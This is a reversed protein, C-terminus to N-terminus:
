SGGDGVGLGYDRLGVGINGLDRGHRRQVRKGNRLAKGDIDFIKVDRPAGTDALYLKKYDPSFCIGNPGGAEDFVKDMQGTKGDVRYVAVPLESVSSYPM